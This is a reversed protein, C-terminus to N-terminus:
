LTAGEEVQQKYAVSDIKCDFRWGTWAAVKERMKIERERIIDVADNSIGVEDTIVRERKIIADMRVGLEQCLRAIAVTHLDNLSQAHTEGDSITVIDADSLAGSAQFYPLAGSYAGNVIEMADASTKDTTRVAKRMKSFIAAKEQAEDIQNMTQTLRYILTRAPAVSIIREWPYLKEDSPLGGLPNLLVPKFPELVELPVYCPLVVRPTDADERELVVSTGTWTLIREVDGVAGPVGTWEFRGYALAEFRSLLTLFPLSM